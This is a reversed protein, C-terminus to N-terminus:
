RGFGAAAIDGASGNLVADAWGGGSSSGATTGSSREREATENNWGEVYIRRQWWPLSLWEDASFGLRRRAWYM